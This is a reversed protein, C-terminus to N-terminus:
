SGLLIVPGESHAGEPLEIIGEDQLQYLGKVISSSKYVGRFAGTITHVTIQQDRHFHLYRYIENRITKRVSESEAFENGLTM